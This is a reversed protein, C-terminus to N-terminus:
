DCWEAMAGYGNMAAEQPTCYGQAPLENNCEQEKVQLSTMSYSILEM